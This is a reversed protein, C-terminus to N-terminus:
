ACSSAESLMKLSGMYETLSDFDHSHQVRVRGDPCLIVPLSVASLPTLGIGDVHIGRIDDVDLPAVLWAVIPNLMYGWEPCNDDPECTEVFYYGTQAPIIKTTDSTM